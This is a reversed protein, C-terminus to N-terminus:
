RRIRFSHPQHTVQTSVDQGIPSTSTTATKISHPTRSGSPLWAGHDDMYWNFGWALGWDASTDVVNDCSGTIAESTDGSAVAIGALMILIISLVVKTKMM